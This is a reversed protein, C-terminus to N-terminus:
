LSVVALLSHIHVLDTTRKVAFVLFATMLCIILVTKCYETGEHNLLTDLEEKAVVMRLKDSSDIVFIIAHSERLPLPSTLTSTTTVAVYKLIRQTISKM